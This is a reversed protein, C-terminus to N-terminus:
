KQEKGDAVVKVRSQESQKKDFIPILKGLFDGLIGLKDSLNTLIYDMGQSGSTTQTIMSSLAEIRKTTETLTTEADKKSVKKGDIEITGNDAVSSIAKELDDKFKIANKREKTAYDSFRKADFSAVNEDDLWTTGKKFGQAEAYKAEIDKIQEAYKGKRLYSIREKVSARNAEKTVLEAGGKNYLEILRNEVAEVAEDRDKGTKGKGARELYDTYVDAPATRTIDMLKALRVAETSNKNNPDKTLATYDSLYKRYHVNSLGNETTTYKSMTFAEQKYADIDQKYLKKAYFNVFDKNNLINDGSVSPDKESLGKEKIFAQISAALIANDGKTKNDKHLFANAKGTYINKITTSTVKDYDDWLKLDDEKTAKRGTIGLRNRFLDEASSAAAGIDEMLETNQLMIKDSEGLKSFLRDKKYGSGDRLGLIDVLNDQFSKFGTTNLHRLAERQKGMREEKKNAEQYNSYVAAAKYFREHDPSQTFTNIAWNLRLVESYDDKMYKRIDEESKIDKDKASDFTKAIAILRDQKDMSSLKVNDKLLESARKATAKDDDYTYQKGDYTDLARLTGSNALATYSTEQLEDLRVRMATNLGISQEKAQRYEDLSAYIGLGYRNSTGNLMLLADEIGVNNTTMISKLQKNFAEESIDVKAPDKATRKTRDAWAAYALDVDDAGTSTGTGLIYGAAEKVMEAKSMGTPIFSGNIAGLAKSAMTTSQARTLLSIGSTRSLMGEFQSEVETLEKIDYNGAAVNNSIKTAINSVRAAGLQAISKGSISEMTQLMAQMDDGFIDKLPSLAEAYEKLTKQFKSTTAKINKTGNLNMASDSIVDMDRTLNAALAAVEVQSMHGYDESKFSYNGTDDKFLNRMFETAKAYSNRDGANIGTRIMNSAASSLYKGSQQAKLPDMFNNILMALPNAMTARADAEIFAEYSDGRVEPDLNKWRNYPTLLKSFGRFANVNTANIFPTVSKAGISNIINNTRIRSIGFPTQNTGLIGNISSDNESLGMAKYIHPTIYSTILPGVGPIIKDIASTIFGRVKDDLTTVYPNQSNESM